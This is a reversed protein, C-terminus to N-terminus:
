VAADMAEGFFSSLSSALGATYEEMLNVTKHRDSARGVASNGSDWDVDSYARYLSHCYAKDTNENPM